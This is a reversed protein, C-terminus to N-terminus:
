AAPEKGAADPPHERSAASHLGRALPLQGRSEGGDQRAYTADAERRVDGAPPLRPLIASARHSTLNAFRLGCSPIRRSRNQPPVIRDRSRAVVSSHLQDHTLWSPEVAAFALGSRTM